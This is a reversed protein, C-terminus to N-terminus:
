KGTFLVLFIYFTYGTCCVAFTMLGVVMIQMSTISSPSDSSQKQLQLAKYISYLIKFFLAQLGFIFVALLITTM